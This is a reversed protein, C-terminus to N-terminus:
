RDNTPEAYASSLDEPRAHTARMGERTLGAVSRDIGYGSDAITVSVGERGNREHAPRVAVTLQGGKPLAELANGILNTVVQQIEGPTCLM